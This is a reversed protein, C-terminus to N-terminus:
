DFLELLETKQVKETGTRPLEDVIVIRQPAMYESLRHRGFELLEGETAATGPRLRVVAAPGQGKRDDHLGVVAAEAMAPHEELAREVETAYVSYSGHKIVDKSRGAFFVVGLPGRRALDGTRVWGDASLVADTADADGHYRRLAGPGRVLLHGTAGPLTDHGAEDVIKMRYGPLAALVAGFRAPLFPPSVRAAVAGGMEVMGYGEAFVAEGLTVPVGPLTVLGGM